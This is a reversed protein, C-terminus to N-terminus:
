AALLEVVRRATLPALLIGNRGHGTAVVVRDDVREIIPLGDVTMPRLGAGVEVLEYTRLAPMIECADALLDAVGGVQPTRDDVDMAEYQTAGVVVGDARPVLYVNRGDIRGRVVQAPGGVSWSTRRLRLVEGKAGYMRLDPWLATSDLGAALVIQDAGIQALDGVRTPVLEAGGTELVGRLTTSLRRNDVAREGAALYGGATRSSLMPAAARVQASSLETLRSAVAADASWVFRALQRLYEADAGSLAVFLSDAAVLVGPDALRDLLPPWLRASEVSLELLADEGPHGEGLSGLMGAAVDSARRQPGGDFVTVRWGADLAALACTLGVVGGGVVALHRM